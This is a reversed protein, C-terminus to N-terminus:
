PCRRSPSTATSGASVRCPSCWCTRGRAPVGPGEAGYGTISGYIIEPNICRVSDYDLGLREAVGPRYNFLVADAHRLLEELRGRQDPDKLDM